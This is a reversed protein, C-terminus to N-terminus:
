KVVMKKTVSNSGLEVTYFYIGAELSSVDINFTHVLASNNASEHHEVQGLINTINLSIVGTVKTTVLIDTKNDAPNPTNQAVSFYYEESENDEIGITCPDSFTYGDIYWYNIPSFPDGPITFEAFVFSAECDGYGGYEIKNFYQSMSGYFASFWHMSLATVNDVEWYFHCVPSYSICFINPNTNGEAGDLDTDIWSFLLTEGDLSSAVYPRNYMMVGGGLDGDLFINDYLATADWSDGGNNSYVHWTAMTGESPFWGDEMAIAIIGTIHPNGNYDVVIDAHFGLNYYVENRDFSYGYIELLIEDSWYNKVSEIGDVGGLQVHIPDSWTDGGDTTKLLVPHYNTFPQPESESNSMVLIYGTQGDPAFAIKYDNIGDLPALFDIVEDQYQVTGNDVIANSILLQGTYDYDPGEHMTGVNWAVGQQTITFADSVNIATSDIIHNVYSFDTTTDTLANAGYSLGDDIKGFCTYYANDPNTNGVENIIGGQGYSPSLDPIDIINNTSWTSGGDTSVDFNMAPIEDNGRHTFVISNLNPDAWLCTRPNGVFGYINPSQGIPIYTTRTNAPELTEVDPKKIIENSSSSKPNLEVKRQVPLDMSRLVHKQAFLTTVISITFVVLLLKKM